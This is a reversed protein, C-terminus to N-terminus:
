RNVTAGCVVRGKLQLTHAVGGAPVQEVATGAVLAGNASLTSVGAAKVLYQHQIVPPGPSTEFLTISDATFTTIFLAKTKGIKVVGALHVSNGLTASTDCEVRFPRAKGNARGEATDGRFTLSSTGTTQNGCDISGKISTIAGLTGPNQGSTATTETLTSDIQAGKAANFKKVGTGEFTRGRFNTGSGSYVGVTIKGAVVHMNFLVAPDPPQDLLFITAGGALAPFNCSVQPSTALGALGADGVFTLTATAPGKPKTPVDASVAPALGAVAALVLVVLVPAVAGLLRQM